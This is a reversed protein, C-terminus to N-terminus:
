RVTFDVFKWPAVPQHNPYALEVGITHKGPTLQLQMVRNKYVAQVAGGDVMIHLHDDGSSPTGIQTGTVKIDLPVPNSIASGAKPSVITFSATTAAAAMPLACAVILGLAVRVIVHRGHRTHPTRLSHFGTLTNM